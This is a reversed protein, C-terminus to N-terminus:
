FTFLQYFIHPVVKFTGDFHITDIEVLKSIMLETALLIATDNRDSITIRYNNSFSSDILLEVFEEPSIPLKSLEVKLRKCMSSKLKM